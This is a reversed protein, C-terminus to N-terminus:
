LKQGLTFITNHYYDLCIRGELWELTGRDISGTVQEDFINNHHAHFIGDFPLALQRTELLPQHRLKM